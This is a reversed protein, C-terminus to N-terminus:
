NLGFNVSLFVAMQQRDNNGDPCYLPPNTSCGGTIGRRAIEEIWAANPHNTPVDQFMGIPAPPVYGPGEKAKLLFRAMPGRKVVGGPCFQGSTCGAPCAQTADCGTMIGDRAAQEIWAAAFHTVPVDPFMTGTAPPPAYGPLNKATLVFVAMEGRTNPGTRCFLPPTSLM